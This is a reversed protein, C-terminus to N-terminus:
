TVYPAVGLYGLKQCALKKWNTCLFWGCGSTNCDKTKSVLAALVDYFEDKQTYTCCDTPLSSVCIVRLVVITEFALYSSSDYLM